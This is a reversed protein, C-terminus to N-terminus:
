KKDVIKTIGHLLPVDPQDTMQLFGQTLDLMSMPATGLAM